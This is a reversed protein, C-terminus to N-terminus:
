THYEIKVLWMIEGSHKAMRCIEDQLKKNIVTMAKKANKISKLTSAPRLDSGCVPCFNPSILTHRNILYSRNLRSGCEKCGIYTSTVTEPYSREFLKNYRIEAKKQRALLATYTKTPKSYDAERYRVALCDYWGKDHAEIYKEADDRSECLPGPLWRIQGLHGGEQWAEHSVYIELENVVKTKDVNEPYEFYVINHGM